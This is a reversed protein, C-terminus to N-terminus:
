SAIKTGPYQLKEIRATECSHHWYYFRENDGTIPHIVLGEAPTSDNRANAFCDAVWSSYLGSCISVSQQNQLLNSRSKETGRLSVERVAMPTSALYNPSLIKM